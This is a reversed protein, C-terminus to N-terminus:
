RLWDGAKLQGSPKLWVTCQLALVRCGRARRRAAALRRPKAPSATPATGVGAPRSAGGQEACRGRSVQGPDSGPELYESGLSRGALDRTLYRQTPTESWPRTSSRISVKYNEIYAIFLHGSYSRYGATASPRKRVTAPLLHIGGKSHLASTTRSPMHPM